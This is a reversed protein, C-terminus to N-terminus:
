EFASWLLAGCIALYSAGVWRVTRDYVEAAQELPKDSLVRLDDEPLFGYLKRRWEIRNEKAIQAFRRNANIAHGFSYLLFVATGILAFKLAVPDAAAKGSGLAAKGFLATVAIAFDKWLTSLVERTQQVVKAVDEGLSKRLDSLSKLTDKSTERIHSFFSTKAAELAFPGRLSFESTLSSDAPWERALEYTFLTHKVEVDRGSAYIWKACDHVAQFDRARNVRDIEFEVKRKRPGVLTVYIRGDEEWAENVLSLYLYRASYTKWLDFVTSSSPPDDKLLFPGLSVPVCGGGLDKVIKRPSVILQEADPPIARQESDWFEFACTETMFDACPEAILIKRIKALSNPKALLAELGEITFLSVIQDVNKKVFIIRLGGEPAELDPNELDLEDDVDNLAIVEGFNKGERAIVKWQELLETSSRGNVDLRDAREQLGGHRSTARVADRIQSPTIM